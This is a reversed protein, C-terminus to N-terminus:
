DRRSLVDLMSSQTSWDRVFEARAKQLDISRQTKRGLDYAERMFRGVEQKTFRESRKGTAVETLDRVLAWLTVEAQHKTDNM